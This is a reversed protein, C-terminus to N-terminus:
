SIMCTKPSNFFAPSQLIYFLHCLTYSPEYRINFNSSFLTHYVKLSLNLIETYLFVSDSKYNIIRILEGVNNGGGYGGVMM